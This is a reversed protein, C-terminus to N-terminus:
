DQIGTASKLTVVAAQLAEDCWMQYTRFILVFICNQEHKKLPSCMEVNSM